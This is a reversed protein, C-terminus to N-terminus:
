RSSGRADLNQEMQGCVENGLVAMGSDRVTVIAPFPPNKSRLRCIIPEPLPQEVEVYDTHDTASACSQGAQWSTYTIEVAHGLEQVTCSPAGTDTFVAVYGAFLVLCGLALGILLALGWKQRSTV